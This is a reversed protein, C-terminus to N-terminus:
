LDKPQKLRHPTQRCKRRLGDPRSRDRGYLSVLRSRNDVGGTQAM